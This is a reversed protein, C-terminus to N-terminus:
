GVSTRNVSQQENNVKKGSHKPCLCEDIISNVSWGDQGAVSLCERETDQKHIHSKGCVDCQLALTYFGEIM